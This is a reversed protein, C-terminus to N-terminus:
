KNNSQTHKLDNILRVPPKTYFKFKQTHRGYEVIQNVEKWTQIGYSIQRLARPLRIEYSETPLVYLVRLDFGLPKSILHLASHTVTKAPCSWDIDLSMTVYPAILCYWSYLGHIRVCDEAAIPGFNKLTM